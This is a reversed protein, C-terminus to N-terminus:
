APEKPAAPLPMWHTPPDTETFDGDWSAWYPDFDEEWEEEPAFGDQYKLQPTPSPEAWAGYTLRGPACLLVETGDKPATEIPQWGRAVPADVPAAYLPVLNLNRQVDPPPPYLHGEYHMRVYTHGNRMGLQAWAVPEPQAALAAEAAAREAKVRKIREDIAADKWTPYEGPGESEHRLRWIEAWLTAPDSENCDLPPLLPCQELPSTM